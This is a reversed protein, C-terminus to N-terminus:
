MWDAADNVPMPPFGGPQSGVVSRWAGADFGADRGTLAVLEALAGRALHLRRDGMYRILGELGEAGGCRALSRCLCLELYAYRERIADATRRPDEGRPIDNGRIVPDALLRRLVPLVDPHAIQEGAYAIAHVFSFRHDSVSGDLHLRDVIRSLLPVLRLDRTRSVANVDYVVDPAWGHDPQTSPFHTWLAPLVPGALAEEISELLFPAGDPVRLICLLRSAIRKCDHHDARRLTRPLRVVAIDPRLLIRAQDALEIPGMALRDCLLEIEGDDPLGDARASPRLDCASIIGNALMTKQLAEVDLRAFSARRRGSTRSALAHRAVYAGAAGLNAMDAQMRAMALGDHTTSYAKGINLVNESGLPVLAGLPITCEYNRLFDREIIGCLAAASSAMGKIDVNSRCVSLSDPFVRSGLVDLYTVTSTGRIHRSERTALYAQPFEAEGYIGTQRRAAALLRSADKWSRQDVVTLYQRSAERRSERFKGFSCWMTIEDRQSGYTYPCGAWASLDGDGTADIFAEGEIARLGHDTGVLVADIRAGSKTVGVIPTSLRLKLADARALQLLVLSIPLGTSEVMEKIQQYRRRFQASWKGFWYYPVGGITNVGGLDGHREVCITDVGTSGATIAAAHGSTGGGAVVLRASDVVAVGDLICEISDVGPERFAPDRIAMAGSAVRGKGTSEPLAAGLVEFAAPARTPKEPSGALAVIRRIARQLAPLARLPREALADAETDDDPVAPGCVLLGQLAADAAVGEELLEGIRGLKWAPHVLPAEAGRLFVLDRDQAHLTRVTEAARLRVAEDLASTRFPADADAPMSLRIELLNGHWRLEDEPFDRAPFRASESPDGTVLRQLVYDTRLDSGARRAFPAGCIRALSAGQTCDIVIRSTVCQLGFKGGAIVGRIRGDAALAAVPTGGYLVEVHADLLLDELAQTLRGLHLGREGGPMRADTQCATFPATLPNADHVDEPLVWPRLCSAQEYGLSTGSALMAVRLGAGALQAAIACGPITGEVVVADFDGVRPVRV